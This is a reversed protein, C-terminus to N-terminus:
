YLFELNSEIILEAIVYLRKIVLFYEDNCMIYRDSNITGM